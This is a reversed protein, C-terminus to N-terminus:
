NPNLSLLEIKRKTNPRTGSGPPIKNTVLM